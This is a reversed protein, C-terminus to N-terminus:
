NKKISYIKLFLNVIVRVITSTLFGLAFGELGFINGLILILSFYTGTQALSGFIIESSYAKGLFESQQITSISLPIIAISM